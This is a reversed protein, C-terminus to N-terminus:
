RSNSGLCVSHFLGLGRSVRYFESFACIAAFSWEFNPEEKNMTRGVM